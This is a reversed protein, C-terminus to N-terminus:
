GKDRRKFPHPSLPKELFPHATTEPLGIAANRIKYALALAPQTTELGFGNGALIAEYSRNHLETFGNSFELEKGDVTICRYTRQGKEKVEEPLTDYNISLFWNVKAREFELLGAARDHRHQYVKNEICEGFIWALMDFFHIGINTAVGGSKELDSKWSTYYWNGRSTIYTLDINHVVNASSSDVKKKLNIIDQLMDFFHIGINTAVGGSKELDSKWSTYYWNGRSTIYTLDINHVVNASASNVKKKLNIIDQHLRLQLINYVKKGTEKEMELLGELNWPNLAIPKECIVDAGYRLGFRCHADHLYNPSCVVVYDIKNGRRKLKELHRDFREFETFFAANPFYSDLIGVSDNCFVWRTTLTWRRWWNEMWRQFLRWIDPHSIARQVL